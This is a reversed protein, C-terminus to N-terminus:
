PVARDDRPACARVEARGLAHRDRLHLLFRLLNLMRWTKKWAIAFIALNLLAYYSFLVVHNGSGTSILIPAAFGAILGLVALALADQMVALLGTCAVLVLMLGFAAGAPLLQYLRFAAFVTMLLVGIAGGQVSLPSRASANAFVGASRSRPLRPPQSARSDFSSPCM